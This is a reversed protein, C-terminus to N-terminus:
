NSQMNSEKVWNKEMQGLQIANGGIKYSAAM